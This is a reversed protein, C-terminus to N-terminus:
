DTAMDSLLEEDEGLFEAARRFTMVHGPAAM